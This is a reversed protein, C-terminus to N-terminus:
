VEHATYAQFRKDWVLVPVKGFFEKISSFAAAVFLPHGVLNLYDGKKWVLPLREAVYAVDQDLDGSPRYLVVEITGFAAAAAFDRHDQRPANVVWVTSSKNESKM